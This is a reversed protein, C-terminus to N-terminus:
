TDQPLSVVIAFTSGGNTRVYLGVTTAGPPTFRGGNSSSSGHRAVDTGIFIHSANAPDIAIAGVPRGTAVAASGAVLSWSSGGNTSKYLGVGAESDSSGNPEGTGVYVTNGTTDTPDFALSGIANSPIGTSVSTWSPSSALANTTKWVGGGAAGIFVTCSSSSCTPSVAIATARGSFVTGATAGTSESSVLADAPVGNPGLAMWTTAIAPALSSIARAANAANAQQAADIWKKPYARNDYGEQARGNHIRNGAPEGSQSLKGLSTEFLDGHFERLHNALAIPLAGSRQLKPQNSGNTKGVLLPGTPNVAVFAMAAAASM